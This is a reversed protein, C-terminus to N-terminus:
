NAESAEYAHVFYLFFHQKLALSTLRILVYAFSYKKPRWKHMRDISKGM